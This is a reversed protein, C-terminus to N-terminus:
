RVGSGILDFPAKDSTPIDKAEIPSAIFMFIFVLVIVCIMLSQSIIIKTQETM